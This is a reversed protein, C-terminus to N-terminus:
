GVCSPLFDDVKPFNYMIIPGFKGRFGNRIDFINWILTYHTWYLILFHLHPNHILTSSYSWEWKVDTLMFKDFIIGYQFIICSYPDFTVESDM